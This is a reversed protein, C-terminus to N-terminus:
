SSSGKPVWHTIKPAASQCHERSSVLKLNFSKVTLGPNRTAKSSRDHAFDQEWQSPTQSSASTPKPDVTCCKSPGSLNKTRSELGCEQFCAWLKDPPIRDYAKERDIFEIFATIGFEWVNEGLQRPTFLQEMARRGPCFGCQSELLKDKM